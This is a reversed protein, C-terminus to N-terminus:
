PHASRETRANLDRQDISGRIRQALTEMRPVPVGLEHARRLPEAWIVQYEVERGEVFDIMSSPRYPGMPRTRDINFDILAPDVELGAKHATAVVEEMLTRIEAEIGPDALLVDTTVGGEAIALGNFPINWILKKWQAAELDKEAECPIGAAAFRTAIEQVRGREDSRYEGVTIRGGATHSVMGPALRNLCVFCLGGLVRESGWHRALLEENGLGNQLTLLLTKEHLL